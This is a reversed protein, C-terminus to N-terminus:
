IIKKQPQQKQKMQMIESANKQLFERYSSDDKINNKSQISNNMQCSSTYDTFARGDSMGPRM